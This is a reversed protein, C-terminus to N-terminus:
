VTGARFSPVTVEYVPDPVSIYTYSPSVANCYSPTPVDFPVHFIIEVPESTVVPEKDSWPTLANAPVTDEIVASTADTEKLTIPLVICPSDNSKLLTWDRM